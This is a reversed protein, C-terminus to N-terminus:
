FEAKLVLQLSRASGIQYLPSFGSGFTALTGGQLARGLTAKAFGFGQEPFFTGTSGVFGLNGDVLGFNPRNFLNFAEIRAQLRVSESVHFQRRLSLDVQALSFGRFFNRGLTGQRQATPISLAAPNIARGGPGNADSLYHSVGAVLDPRFDYTGFGINRSVTVDVPPASRLIAISDVSWNALMQKMGSPITAAPLNYDLGITATHRIDFDSPGYDRRPDVFRAPIGNFVNFVTESSANDLSHALAYLALISPGSTWRRQFRIQLSDYNSYASNGTLFVQAFNSSGIAPDSMYEETRLLRLGLAGVYSVTLMQENHLSQQVSINWQWTQPLKLVFPFAAITSLPGPTLGFGPAQASTPTLPFHNDFLIRKASFPFYDPRIADGAAVNGL